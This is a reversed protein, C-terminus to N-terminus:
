SAPLHSLITRISAIREHLSARANVPLRMVAGDRTAVVLARDNETFSLGRIEQGSVQSVQLVDLDDTAYVWVSGASTGMAVLDEGSSVALARTEHGIDFFPFHNTDVTDRGVTLRELCGSDLGVGGSFILGTSPASALTRAGGWCVPLGLRLMTPAAEGPSLQAFEDNGGSLVVDDGLNTVAEVALLPSKMVTVEDQGARWLGYEDTACAVVLSLTPSWTLDRPLCGGAPIPSPTGGDYPVSWIAPGAGTSSQTGVLWGDPSSAVALGHVKKLRAVETARRGSPDVEVLRGDRSVLGIRGDYTSTADMFWWNPDRAVPTGTRDEWALRRGAALEATVVGPGTYGLRRVGASQMLESWRVGTVVDHVGISRTDAIALNPGRPDWALAVVKSPRDTRLQSVGERDVVRVTRGDGEVSATWAGDPSTAVLDTRLDDPAGGNAPKPFRLDLVRSTLIGEYLQMADSTDLLALVTRLGARPNSRVRDYAAAFEQSREQRQAFDAVIQDGTERLVPPLVGLIGALVVLTTTVGIRLARRRESARLFLAVEADADVPPRRRASRIYARLARGRALRQRSRGGAAWRSARVLLDSVLVDDHTLRGVVALTEEAARSPDTSTDLAVIPKAHNQAISLEKRCSASVRAAPTDVHAVVLAGRVAHRIEERWPVSAPISSQDIWVQAGRSGLAAALAHAWGSDQRSYSIFVHRSM